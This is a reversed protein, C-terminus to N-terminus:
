EPSDIKPMRATSRAAEEARAAAELHVRAIESEDLFGVIRGDGDVVPIERLQNAVLREAARRLNDDLGVTIPPGMVDAAVAWGAGSPEAALVRLADASVLGCLAGGADVVPFVDQWTTEGVRHLMEASSTGPAFSVFDRGAAVVEGVRVAQLAELLHADRHVPSERASAVQAPYLAQRRLAVFAIGLALMLPVLLDYNGALECVLVLAALPVHAIGGYFVGMGVLAFAAPEITPDGLGLQAARGFAGGILAGIALSPAFDGASGGSGITLSAALAKAGALLLLLSVATWGGPLWDAGSISM